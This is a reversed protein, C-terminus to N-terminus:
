SLDDIARLERKRKEKARSSGVNTSNVKRFFIIRIGLPTEGANARCVTGTVATCQVWRLIFIRLPPATLVSSNPVATDLGSIFETGAPYKLWIQLMVAASCLALLRYEVGWPGSALAM